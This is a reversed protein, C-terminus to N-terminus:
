GGRRRGIIQTVEISPGESCISSAMYVGELTVQDGEEIRSLDGHLVYTQDDRDVFDRCSGNMPGAVGTRRVKGSEDTVHFAESIGIPAFIANFAILFIPRDTTASRPIRVIAEVDGWEGQQAEGITEFGAGISGIGVHIRAQLPLNESKISVITGPPGSLPIVEQINRLSDVGAPVRHAQADAPAVTVVAFALVGGCAMLVRLAGRAAVRM